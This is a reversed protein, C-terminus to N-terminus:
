KSSSGGVKQKIYIPASPPAKFAKGLYVKEFCEAKESKTNSIVLDVVGDQNIRLIQTIGDGPLDNCKAKEASIADNEYAIREYLYSRTASDYPKILKEAESFDMAFSSLPTLLILIWFYKM